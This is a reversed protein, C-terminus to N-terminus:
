YTLCWCSTSPDLIKLCYWLAPIINSTKWVVLIPLFTHSSGGQHQICGACTSIFILMDWYKVSWDWLWGDGGRLVVVKKEVGAAKGSRKTWSFHWCFHSELKRECASDIKWATQETKLGAFPIFIKKDPNKRPHSENFFCHIIKLSSKKQRRSNKSPTCQPFWQFHLLLNMKKQSKQISVTWFVDHCYCIWPSVPLFQFSFLLCTQISFILQDAVLDVVLNRNSMDWLVCPM